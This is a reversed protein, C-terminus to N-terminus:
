SGRELKGEQEALWQEGLAGPPASFRKLVHM